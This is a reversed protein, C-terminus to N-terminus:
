SVSDSLWATFPMGTSTTGAQPRNTPQRLRCSDFGGSPSYGDWENQLRPPGGSGTVEPTLTAGRGSQERTTRVGVICAIEAGAASSPSGM